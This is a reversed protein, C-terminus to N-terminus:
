NNSSVKAAIADIMEAQTKKKKKSKGGLPTPLTLEPMEDGGGRPPPPPPLSDEGTSVRIKKTKKAKDMSGTMQQRIFESDRRNKLSTMVRAVLLKEKKKKKKKHEQPAGGPGRTRKKEDSEKAMREKYAAAKEAKLKKEKIEALQTEAVKYQKFFRDFILFFEEWQLKDNTEGFYKLLETYDTMAQELRQVVKKIKKSAKAHFERM